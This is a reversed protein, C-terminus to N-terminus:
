KKFFSASRSKRAKIREEQSMPECCGDEEYARRDMEYDAISQSMKNFMIRTSRDNNDFSLRNDINLDSGMKELDINAGILNVTWGMERVQSILRAVKEWTYHRSANEYGDTIISINATADEHTAAIAKLDVITSGVADLLPTMGTPQYDHPTIERAEEAFVNRCIYRSNRGGEDFAYISVFSRSKGDATKQLNKVTQIIENCGSITAKTCGAMSGSEDLIILNFITTM